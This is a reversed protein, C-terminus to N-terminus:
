QTTLPQQTQRCCPVDNKRRAAAVLVMLVLWVSTPEPVITVKTLYTGSAHTEYRVNFLAGSVPDEFLPSFDSATKDPGYNGLGSLPWLAFGICNSPPTPECIVGRFGDTNTPSTRRWHTAGDAFNTSWLSAFLPPGAHPDPLAATSGIMYAGNDPTTKLADPGGVGVAVMDTGDTDITMVGASRTILGQSTEVSGDRAFYYVDPIGDGPSGSVAATTQGIVPTTWCFWLLCAVACGSITTKM